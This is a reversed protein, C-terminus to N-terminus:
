RGHQDVMRLAKIRRFLNVIVEFEDHFVDAINSSENIVDNIYSVVWDCAFSVSIEGTKVNLLLPFMKCSSPKDEHISCRRHALDYFPCFGDIIWLYFYETIPKFNLSIGKRSALEKLKEVEERLVIPYDIPTSFFCCHLCNLCKFKLVL